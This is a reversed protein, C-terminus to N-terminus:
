SKIETPCHKKCYGESCSNCAMGFHGGFCCALAGLFFLVFMLFSTYGLANTAKQTNVTVVSTNDQISQSMAPMNRDESAIVATPNTIFASYSSVYHGMNSTLLTTLILALCWTTFGYLVGLNRKVCYSRGLYGAATGAVFMSVISSIALGLFGGIALSVLGEKSTTVISLGIAISFLSLLFSLGIGILAGVIIASWSICKLSIPERSHEPTVCTENLM